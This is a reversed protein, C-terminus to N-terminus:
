HIPDVNSKLIIGIMCILFHNFFEVHKTTLDHLYFINMEFAMLETCCSEVSSLNKNHLEVNLDDNIDM